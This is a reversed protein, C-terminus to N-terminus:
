FINILSFFNIRNVIFKEHVDRYYAHSFEIVILVLYPFHRIASQAGHVITHVPVIGLFSTSTEESSVHLHEGCDLVEKLHEFLRVPSCIVSKWLAFDFYNLFVFKNFNLHRKYINKRRKIVYITRLIIIALFFIAM